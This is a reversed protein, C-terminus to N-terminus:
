IADASFLPIRLPGLYVLLVLIVNYLIQFNFKWHFLLGCIYPLVWMSVKFLMVTLWFLLNLHVGSDGLM